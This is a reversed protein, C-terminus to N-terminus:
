TLWGERFGIAVLHATTDAHADGRLLALYYKVTNPSLSMAEAVEAPTLGDAVYRLLELRKPPPVQLTM